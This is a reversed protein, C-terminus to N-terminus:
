FRQITKPSHRTLSRRLELPLREVTMASLVLDGVNELAHEGHLLGILDLGGARASRDHLGPAHEV